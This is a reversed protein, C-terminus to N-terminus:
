TIIHLPVIFHLGVSSWRLAMSTLRPGPPPPHGPPRPRPPRQLLATFWGSTAATLTTYVGTNVNVWGWYDCLASHHCCYGKWGSWVLNFALSLRVLALWLFSLYFKIDVCHYVCRWLTHTVSRAYYDSWGLHAVNTIHRIEVLVTHKIAFTRNLIFSLYLDPMVGVSM